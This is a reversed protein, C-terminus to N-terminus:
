KEVVRLDSKEGEKLFSHKQWTKEFVFLVKFFFFLVGGPKQQWLPCHQIILQRDPVIM